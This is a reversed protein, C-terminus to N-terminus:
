CLSVEDMMNPVNEFEQSESDKSHIRVMQVIRVHIPKDMDFPIGAQARQGLSGHSKRGLM